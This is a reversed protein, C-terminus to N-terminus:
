CLSVVTIATTSTVYGIEVDNCVIRRFLDFSDVVFDAAARKQMELVPMTCPFTHLINGHALFTLFEGRCSFCTCGAAVTTGDVVLDGLGNLTVMVYKGQVSVTQVRNCRLTRISSSKELCVFNATQRQGLSWMSSQLFEGGHCHLLLSQQTWNFWLRRGPSPVAIREWQVASCGWPGHFACQMYFLSVYTPRVALCKVGM